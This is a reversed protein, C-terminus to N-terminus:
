RRTQDHQHRAHQDHVKMLVAINVKPLKKGDAPVDAASGFKAEAVFERARM